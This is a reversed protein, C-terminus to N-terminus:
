HDFGFDNPNWHELDFGEEGVCHGTCDRQSRCGIECEPHVGPPRMKAWENCEPKLEDRIKMLIKGLNNEGVGRCVGWFTDNWSNTEVLEQTGTALLKSKFPEQNFKLRCLDEMFGLKNNDWDDILKVSRGLKKIQGANFLTLTCTKKHEVSNSKCAVFAHEVSPYTFGRYEIECPEFNSLFANEDKFGSIM